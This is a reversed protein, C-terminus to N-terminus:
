IQVCKNVIYNIIEKNTQRTYHLGDDTKFELTDYSNCYFMNNLGKNKLDKKITKNFLKIENTTRNNTSWTKNIKKENIPNVSLLYFKVDPYDKALQSYLQFYDDAIDDGDYEDDNLDNVGMNIVVSYKFDNNDIIKEVKQVAVDEFWDIKMGSKAVFRLNFPKDIKKDDDIYSMRSDGVIVIRNTKLKKLVKDINNEVKFVLNVNYKTSCGEFKKINLLWILLFILFGVLLASIFVILGKQFKNNNKFIKDNKVLFALAIFSLVVFSCLINFYQTHIINFIFNDNCIKLLVFDGCM